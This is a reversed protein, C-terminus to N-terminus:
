PKVSLVIIQLEDMLEVNDPTVKVGFKQQMYELRNPAIDSVVINDKLFARKELFGGLLADAM